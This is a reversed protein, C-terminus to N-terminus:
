VRAPNSSFSGGSNLIRWKRYFYIHINLYSGCRYLPPPLLLYTSSGDSVCRFGHVRGGSEGGGWAVAHRWMDPRTLSLKWVQFSDLSHPVWQPAIISFSNGLSTCSFTERISAHHQVSEVLTHPEYIATLYCVLKTGREPNEFWRWNWIWSRTAEALSKMGNLPSPIMGAQYKSSISHGM